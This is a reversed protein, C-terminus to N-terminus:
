PGPWEEGSSSSSPPSKIPPRESTLLVVITPLFVFLAIGGVALLVVLRDMSM